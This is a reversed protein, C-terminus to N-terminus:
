NLFEDGLNEVKRDSFLELRMNSIDNELLYPREKDRCGYNHLTYIEESSFTKPIEAIYIALKNIPSQPACILPKPIRKGLLSKAHESFEEYEESINKESGTYM